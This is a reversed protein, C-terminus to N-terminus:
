IVNNQSEPGYKEDFIDQRIERGSDMLDELTVNQEQLTDNLEDLLEDLRTERPDMM